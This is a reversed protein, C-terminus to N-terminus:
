VTTIEITKNRSNKEMPLKNMIYLIYFPLWFDMRFVISRSTQLMLFSSLFLILFSLQNANYKRRFTFSANLYAKWILLVFPVFGLIGMTMLVEIFVNHPYSGKYHSYNTVLRFYNGWIPSSSFNHLGILFTSTEPHDFDMRGSSDGETISSAIKNGTKPFSDKLGDIISDYNLYVFAVVIFAFFM